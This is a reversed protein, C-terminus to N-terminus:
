MDVIFMGQYFRTTNSACSHNFLILDDFIGSGLAALPIDGSVDGDVRYIQLVSYAISFHFHFLLMLFRLEEQEVSSDVQHESFYNAERLCHLLIVCRIAIRIREELPTDDIHTEMNYLSKVQTEEPSLLVEENGEENRGTDNEKNNLTPKSKNKSQKSMVFLPDKVLIHESSKQSLYFSAPHSVITKFALFLSVCKIEDETHNQLENIYNQFLFREYRHYTKMATSLCKWSCFGLGDVVPSYYAMYECISSLCHHCAKSCKSKIDYYSYSINVNEVLVTEGIDIDQNAVVYRGKDPSYQITTKSSMSTHLTDVVGMKTHLLNDLNEIMDANVDFLIQGEECIADLKKISEQTQKKFAELFKEPLNAKESAQLALDFCAKAHIKNQLASYCKGKREYLVYKNSFNGDEDDKNQCCSYFLAADCDDICRIYNQVRYFIMSRSLYGQELLQSKKQSPKLIEDGNQEPENQLLQHCSRIYQTFCSLADVMNKKQLSVKGKERLQHCREETVELNSPKEFLLKWDFVDRSTDLIVKLLGSNDDKPLKGEDLSEFITKFIESLTKSKFSTM